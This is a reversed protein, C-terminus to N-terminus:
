SSTAQRRPRLQVRRRPQPGAGRGQRAHALGRGPGTVRACCAMRTNPAYGLRELTAKEDDSIPSTCDMGSKIAVPDAGCIGMRCGAEIPLGNAEAIELLSQGPKPIVHKNEPVFTVEPAAPSATPRARSRGDARVVARAGPKATAQELFPKEKRLTRVFWTAALAIAAARIAWTLREPGIDGAFWYFLSFAVAGYLSTLTHPTRKVFTGLLAFSAISAAVFLAM